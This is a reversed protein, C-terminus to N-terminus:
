ARKSRSGASATARMRRTMAGSPQPSQRHAARGTRHPV